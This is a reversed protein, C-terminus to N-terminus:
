TGSLTPAVPTSQINLERIFSTCVPTASPVWRGSYSSLVASPVRSLRSSTHDGDSLVRRHHDNSSTNNELCIQISLPADSPASQWISFISGRLEHM